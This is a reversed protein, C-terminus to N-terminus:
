RAWNVSFPMLVLSINFGNSGRFKSVLQDGISHAVNYNVTYNYDSNGFYYVGRVKIAMGAFFGLEAKIFPLARLPTVKDYDDSNIICFNFGAGLAFMTKAQKNLLVDAGSRYELSIPIGIKHVDTPASINTNKALAISDYSLKSVSAMFEIEAVLMSKDSMLVVPFYSGIYFAYSQKAKVTATLTTDTYASDAFGMFHLDATGSIFHLGGAVSLRQWFRGGKISNALYYDQLSSRYKSQAVTTTICSLVCLLSLLFNKM